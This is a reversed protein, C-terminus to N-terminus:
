FSTYKHIVFFIFMKELQDLVFKYGQTEAASKAINSITRGNIM